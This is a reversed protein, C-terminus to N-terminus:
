ITKLMMVPACWGGFGKTKRLHSIVHYFMFWIGGVYVVLGAAAAMMM